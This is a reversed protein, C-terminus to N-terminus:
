TEFVQNNHKPNQAKTIIHLYILASLITSPQVLPEYQTFPVIRIANATQQKCVTQLDVYGKAQARRKSHM